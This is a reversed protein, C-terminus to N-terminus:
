AVDCTTTWVIAHWHARPRSDSTLRLGRGSSPAGGGDDDEDDDVFLNSSGDVFVEELEVEVDEVDVSAGMGCSTLTSGVDGASAGGGVSVGM